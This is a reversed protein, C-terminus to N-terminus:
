KMNQSRQKVKESLRAGRASRAIQEEVAMWLEPQQLRKVEDEWLLIANEVSMSAEAVRENFNKHVLKPWKRGSQSLENITVKAKDMAAKAGKEMEAAAKLAAVAEARQAASVLCGGSAPCGGVLSEAAKFAAQTEVMWIRAFQLDGIVRNKLLTDGECFSELQDFGCMNWGEASSVASTLARGAGSADSLNSPQIAQLAAGAIQARAAEDRADRSLLAQEVTLFGQGYSGGYVTKLIAEDGTYIAEEPNWWNKV